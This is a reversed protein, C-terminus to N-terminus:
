IHINMALADTAKECIRHYSLHQFCHMMQVSGVSGEVSGHCRLSGGVCHCTFVSLVRILSCRSWTLTELGTSIVIKVRKGGIVTCNVGASLGM